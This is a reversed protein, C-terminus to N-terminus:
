ATPGRQVTLLPGRAVEEPLRIGLVLTLMELLAITPDRFEADDPRPDVDLGARRMMPLFRDPDTGHREWARFPEFATVEVGDAFYHFYDITQTHSFYAVDTGASLELAADDEYGGHGAASEDIAFAWEGTKGVRIWPHTTIYADDFVPYRLANSFDVAPLLQAAGPVMGFAEMLREPSAGRAFMLTGGIDLDTSVWDWESTGSGEARGTM